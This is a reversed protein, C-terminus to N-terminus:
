ENFKAVTNDLCSACYEAIVQLVKINSGIVDAINFKINPYERSLQHILMPLDRKTHKGDGLFIPIVIIDRVHKEALIQVAHSLDPSMFELFALEVKITSQLKAQLLEHLMYFPKIWSPDRAGHAFLVLAQNKM